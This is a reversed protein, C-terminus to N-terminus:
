NDYLGEYFDKVMLEARKFDGESMEKLLGTALESVKQDNFEKLRIELINKLILLM